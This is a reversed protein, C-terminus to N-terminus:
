ATTKFQEPHRSSIRPQLDPVDEEDECENLLAPPKQGASIKGM